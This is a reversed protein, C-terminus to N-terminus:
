SSRRQSPPLVVDTMTRCPISFRSFRSRTETSGRAAMNLDIEKLPDSM